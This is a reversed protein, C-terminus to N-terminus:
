LYLGGSPGCDPTVASRREAWTKGSRASCYLPGVDMWGEDWTRVTPDAPSSKAKGDAFVTYSTAEFVGGPKADFLLVEVM